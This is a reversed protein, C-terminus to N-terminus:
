KPLFLSETLRLVYVFRPCQKRVAWFGQKKFFWPLFSEDLGSHPNLHTLPAIAFFHWRDSPCSQPAFHQAFGKYTNSPLARLTKGKGKDAM